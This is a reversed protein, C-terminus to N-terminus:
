FKRQGDFCSLNFPERNAAPCNRTFYRSFYREGFNNQFVVGVVSIKLSSMLICIYHGSNELNNMM